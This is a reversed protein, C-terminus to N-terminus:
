QTKAALHKEIANTVQSVTLKNMCSTHSCSTLDCELCDLQENRVITHIDGYPGQLNPNTPGFIAVCPTKMAAAIHMPGSDSTVMLKIKELIAALQKLNTEPILLTESKSMKQLELAKDKEGPGWLVLVRANQKEVLYNVVNAWNELPWQKTSWGGSFNVAIVNRQNLNQEKWFSDAFKKSGTGVEFNLSKSLVPISLAELADLHWEAEHLEKARSKVVKNYALRRLRFNYGVRTKAGSFWTIIASRPNGFFDIVLDYAQNHINSIFKINERVRKTPPLGLKYKKDYVIVQNLIPNGLVVEKCYDETLFDIRAAPYASRINELVITSLVVDGIARLKIILIKEINKKM